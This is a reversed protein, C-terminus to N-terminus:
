KAKNFRSTGEGCECRFFAISKEWPSLVRDEYVEGPHQSEWRDKIAKMLWPWLDGYYDEETIEVWKHKHSKTKNKKPWFLAVKLRGQRAIGTIPNVLIVTTKNKPRAKSVSKKGRPVEPGSPDHRFDRRQIGGARWSQSDEKLRM